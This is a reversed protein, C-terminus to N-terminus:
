QLYLASQVIAVTSDDFCIALFRGTPDWQVEFIPSRGTITAIREGTAVSSIDILMDTGGSAIYKGCPSVSLSIVDKTHREIVHIAQGRRADWVIVAGDQSSSVVLYDAHPIWKVCSVGTRHGNLIISENNEKWIRVTKDESASALLSGDNSWAIATVHCTHGTLFHDTGNVNCIGITNDASASAFIFNDKWAVDLITDTHHIFQHVIQSTAVNWLIATKDASCTVIYQGSPNFRVAFVNHRHGQLTSYLSGDPRYIRVLTDFSGTAFLTGSSNWDITTIGHKTSLPEPAKGLIARITAIPYGPRFSNSTNYNNFNNVPQNTFSNTYGNINPNVYNINPINITPKVDSDIEWIIATADASATALLKGNPSWSCGFVCLQHGHLIQAVQANIAIDVPEHHVDNTGNHQPPLTEIQRQSIDPFRDEVEFIRNHLSDDPDRKAAKVIKELKMYLLSKQLISILMGSPIQSVVSDSSDIMSESQFIFASHQFGSESLYRWVLTNVSELTIAM